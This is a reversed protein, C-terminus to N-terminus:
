YGMRVGAKNSLVSELSFRSILRTLPDVPNLEVVGSESGLHALERARNLADYYNGLHDVLGIARAKRGTVVRGDAIKRIEEPEMKGKRGNKVQALFQNYVDGVMDQLLRREEPTLKRTTSGMDKYPGSKVVETGIGLKELLGELNPLEAIVGISGTTTAPNAYIEDCGAAIWYGGSAAVDGMSAVLPKGTQKLRQLERGIEQAAVASGGPSDIRILVAKIDNRRAAEQLAEMVGATDVTGTYGQGSGMLVGEVRVVGVAGKTGLTEGKIERTPTWRAAAVLIGLCFLVILGVTLKQKM